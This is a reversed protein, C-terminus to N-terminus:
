TIKKPNQGKLEAVKELFREVWEPSTMMVLAKIEVDGLGTIRLEQKESWGEFRQYALKAASSDGKAAQKLVGVDAQSLKPSYKKRRIVLAEAEIESLEDPTFHKYVASEQAYGLILTSYEQRNLFDNEPNGLYELLKNKNKEKVRM